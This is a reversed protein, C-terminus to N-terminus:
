AVGEELVVRGAERVREADRCPPCALYAAGVVYCIGVMPGALSLPYSLEATSM